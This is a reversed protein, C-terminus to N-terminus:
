LGIIKYSNAITALSISKTPLSEVWDRIGYDDLIWDEDITDVLYSFAIKNTKDYIYHIGSRPNSHVLMESEDVVGLDFSLPDGMCPNLRTIPNIRIALDYYAQKEQAIMAAKDKFVSASENRSLEDDTVEKGNGSCKLYKKTTSSGSSTSRVSINVSMGSIANMNSAFFEDVDSVGVAMAGVNSSRKRAMLNKLKLLEETEELLVLEGSNLSDLSVVSRTTLPTPDNDSCLYRDEKSCSLLLMAALGTLTYINKTLSKM